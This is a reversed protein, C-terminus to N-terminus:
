NRYTDPFLVELASLAIHRDIGRGSMPVMVAPALFADSTITLVASEAASEVAPQYEVLVDFTGGPAVAGTSAQGEALAFAADGDLEVRDISLTETGTNTVTLTHRAPATAQVDVAGFYLSSQSLEVESSTGSVRVDFTISAADPITTLVTVTADRQGLARPTATISFSMSAGIGLPA